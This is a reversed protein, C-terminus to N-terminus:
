GVGTRLQRIEVVAHGSQEVILDMLGRQTAELHERMAVMAGSGDGARLRDVIRRHEEAAEALRHPYFALQLREVPAVLGEAIARLRRNGCYALVLGHLRRDAEHQGSALFAARGEVQNPSALLADVGDLADPAVHSAALRAAEPELFLRLEGIERVDQVTIRRVAAGRGPVIEILDEQALRQFAERLPTRSAGLSRALSVEDLAQGDLDGRVIQERLRRYVMAAKSEGARGENYVSQM